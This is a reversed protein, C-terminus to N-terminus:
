KRVNEFVAMGHLACSVSMQVYAYVCMYLIHIYIVVCM